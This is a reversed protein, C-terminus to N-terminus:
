SYVESLEKKEILNLLDINGWGVFWYQNEIETALSCAQKTSLTGLSTSSSLTHWVEVLLSARKQLDIFPCALLDLFLHTLESDRTIDKARVLREKAQEFVTEKRSALEPHDRYIFLSVVTHFYQGHANGPELTDLLHRELSGDPSFEQLSVLINLLEVPVIASKRYLKSFTPSRALMTTWRLCYEKAIEFGETDHQSLHKAACVLSHSLRLSSAVTPHLTFFYFSVDLIFLIIQRYHLRDFPADELKRASLYDDTLEVLKRKMAGIVYNSVSDYGMDSAYCAAKIERTFNGFLARHRFIRKPLSYRRDRYVNTTTREWLSQVSKNVRDIILSKRTYFPRYALETKHDNLHLNYERLAVSLEHQVADLTEKSNAFVYYNDVYRRCEFDARNTVNVTELRASTTQDVRALIIEAFIRSIEPGICIGSTEAYNLQQMLRDFDNGFSIARGHEKAIEKTNVAWPMSHTYISDFCKSVDLSLQYKFKKELRIHDHSLFFKFLRDFGEYSFYSAPNRVLKDIATVDVTTSKYKHKDVFRSRIFYSTGVRSPRRISFPSRGGYECILQSYHTYFDAIKTQGYPHLLSLTRISDADKVINYRLPITYKRDSLVLADILKRLKPSKHDLSSLNKYFGDNSFIVPVEAPLTDTLVCRWKDKKNLRIRVVHGKSM